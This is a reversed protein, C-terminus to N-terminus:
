SGFQYPMGSIACEGFIMTSYGSPVSDPILPCHNQKKASGSGNRLMSVSLAAIAREVL